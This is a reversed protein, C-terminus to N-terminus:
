KTDALFIWKTDTLNFQPTFIEIDHMCNNLTFPHGLGLWDRRWIKLGILRM